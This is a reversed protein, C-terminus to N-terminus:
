CTADFQGFKIFRKYMGVRPVESCEPFCWMLLSLLLGALSTHDQSGIVFLAVFYALHQPSLQEMINYLRQSRECKRLDSLAM